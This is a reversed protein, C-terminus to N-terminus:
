DNATLLEMLRPRVQQLFQTSTPWQYDALHFILGTLLTGGSVTSIYRIKELLGIEALYRLVGLHFYMARTGGGSLTLAINIEKSESDPRHGSEVVSIESM